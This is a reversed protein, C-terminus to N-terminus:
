AQTLVLKLVQSGVSVYMSGHDDIAIKSTFVFGGKPGKWQTVYQGGSSLEQIRNNDSDVVFVNGESDVALGTPNSFQGPGTGSGGWQALLEGAPSFKEIRDTGPGFPHPESVYLNGNADLAIDYPIDSLRGLGGGIAWQTLPQGLSDLKQIRVNGEEAVYIDGHQDIAIGLPGKFQGLASGYTGWQALAKGTPSFKQVRSNQGVGASQSGDETVYLNGHTDFALKDPAELQGPGSGHEGWEALLKGATSYKYIRSDDFEALYLNGHSDLAIGPIGLDVMSTKVTLIVQWSNGPSTPRAVSGGCSVLSATLFVGFFSALRKKM